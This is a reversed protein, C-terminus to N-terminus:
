STVKALYAVSAAAIVWAAREIWASQAIRVHMSHIANEAEEIRKWMRSHTERDQMIREEVRAMKVILERVESLSDEIRKLRLRIEDESM